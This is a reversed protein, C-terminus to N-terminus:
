KGYQSKHYQSIALFLWGLIFMLGGIPTIPGIIKSISSIAFLDQLSLLYLSGSFLIIGLLFLNFSWNIFKNQTELKLLLMVFTMALTHIFHYNVATHYTDLQSQTFGGLTIKNKLYHAGFAGLIVALAGFIGTILFKNKM